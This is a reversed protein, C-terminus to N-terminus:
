GFWIGAGTAGWAGGEPRGGFSLDGSDLAVRAFCGAEPPCTVRHPTRSMVNLVRGPRDIAKLAVAAGGDFRAQDGQALAVATGDICLTIAIPDIVLLTRAMGPLASFAAPAVLSAISIRRAGGPGRWLVRTVGGNNAWRTEAADAYRVIVPPADCSAPCISAANARAISRSTM